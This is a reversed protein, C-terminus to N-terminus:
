IHMGGTMTNPNQGRKITRFRRLAEQVPLDMHSARYEPWTIGRGGVFGQEDQISERFSPTSFTIGAEQSPITKSQRPGDPNSSYVAPVMRAPDFKIYVTSLNGQCQDIRITKGGVYDNIQSCTFKVGKYATLPVISGDAYM